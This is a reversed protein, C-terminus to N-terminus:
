DKADMDSIANLISQLTDKNNTSNYFHVANDGYSRYDRKIKEIGEAIADVDEFDICEAAGFAGVTETLGINESVLMPLGFKAYEYIKNPACFVNNLCSFDYNAIGINAFKTIALHQPSPVFGLYKVQDYMGYLEEVLRGDGKGMILFVIDKDGIKGLAKAINALPRDKEVIGQYLVIFKEKIDNIPNLYKKTQENGEIQETELFEYPKNPLVYPIRELHYHSKMIVARHKECCTVVSAKRIVRDLLWDVIKDYDYLELVSLIFKRKNLLGGLSIASECNGFWLWESSSIGKLIKGIEKRYNLFKNVTHFKGKKYNDSFLTHHEIRRKDLLFNIYDSNKGHYVCLEMGLDDLFFVQALCPPYFQFGKKLFYIIKM